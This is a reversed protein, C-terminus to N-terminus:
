LKIFSTDGNTIVQDLHSECINSMVMFYYYVMLKVEMTPSSSHFNRGCKNEHGPWWEDHDQDRDM